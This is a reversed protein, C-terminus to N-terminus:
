TKYLRIIGKENLEKVILITIPLLFLGLFGFLSIGFYMSILMLLPHLGIQKGVIRPELINRIVTIIIYVVFLGIAVGLQNSLLCFVAWPLMIGGTGLVPLIDFIAIMFAITIGNEIRLISFGIALEIFTILMIKAYGIFFGSVTGKMFQRITVVVERQKDNLQLMIFRIIRRYDLCIFFSSIISFFFSLILSPLSVTVDTLINILASSGNSVITMLASSLQQAIDDFEFVTFSEIFSSMWHIGDDLLPSIYSEYLAPLTQIYNVATQIAKMSLITITLGITFYFLLIIVISWLKEWGNTLITLKRILPRLMFSIVFGILFPMLAYLVYKLAIYVIGLVLVSYLVRIIFIKQKELNHM